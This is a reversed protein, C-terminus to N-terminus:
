MFVCFIPSTLMPFSCYPPVSCHVCPFLFYPVSCQSVFVYLFHVYPPFFMLIQCPFVLINPVLLLFILPFMVHSLIVILPSCFMPLMMVNAYFYYYRCITHTRITHTHVQTYKHVQVGSLSRFSGAYGSDSV